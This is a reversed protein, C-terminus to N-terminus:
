ARRTPGTVGSTPCDWLRNVADLLHGITSVPVSNIDTVIGHADLLYYLDPEGYPDYAYSLSKTSVGWTWGPDGYREHATHRAFSALDARGKDTSDLDGYLDVVAIHVGKAAFDPLHKAFVPVSVACSSCSVAVFWVLSPHGRLSAITRTGGATDVFTGDPAPQGVKPPISAAHQSTGAAPTGAGSRASPTGCAVVLLPLLVTVALRRRRRPSRRSQSSAPSGVPRAVTPTSARM